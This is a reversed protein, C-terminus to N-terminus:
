KVKTQENIGFEQPYFKQIYMNKKNFYFEHLDDLDTYYEPNNMYNKNDVLNMEFFSIQSSDRKESFLLDILNQEVEKFNTGYGSNKYKYGYAMKDCIFKIGIIKSLESYDKTKFAHEVADFGVIASILNSEYLEEQNFVKEKDNGVLMNAMQAITGEYLAEYNEENEKFNKQNSFCLKILVNTLLNKQDYQEIKKESFSIKNANSNYNIVGNFLYKGGEEVFELTSIKSNLNNLDIDPYANTIKLLLTEIAEKGELTINSNNNLSEFIDTLTVEKEESTNSNSNLSEFNKEITM